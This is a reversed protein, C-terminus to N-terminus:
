ARLTLLFTIQDTLALSAVLLRVFIVVAMSCSVAFERSALAAMVRGTGIVPIGVRELALSKIATSISRTVALPTPVTARFWTSAVARGGPALVAAKDLVVAMDLLLGM